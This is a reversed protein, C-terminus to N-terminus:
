SRKNEEDDLYRNLQAHLSNVVKNLRHDEATLKEVEDRLGQNEWELNQVKMRLELTDSLFKNELSSQLNRIDSAHRAKLNAIKDENM